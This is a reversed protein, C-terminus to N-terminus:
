FSPLLSFALIHVHMESHGTSTIFPHGKELQSQVVAHGRFTVHLSLTSNLSKCLIWTEDM